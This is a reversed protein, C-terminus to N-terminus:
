FYCRFGNLIYAKSFILANVIEEFFLQIEEKKLCYNFFIPTIDNAMHQVSKKLLVSIFMEWSRFIVPTMFNYKVQELNIKKVTRSSM